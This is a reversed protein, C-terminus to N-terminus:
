APDIGPRWTALNRIPQKIFCNLCSKRIRETVRGVSTKAIWDASAALVQSPPPTLSSQPVGAFQSLLATGLKGAASVKAPVLRNVGWLSRGPTVTLPIVKSAAASAKVNPPLLMQNPPLMPNLPLGGAGTVWVRLRSM